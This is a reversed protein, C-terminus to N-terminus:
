RWTWGASCGEPTRQPPSGAAEVLDFRELLEDVRLRSEAKGLHRLDAILRLNEEGTFQGDIASFQGTLGIM